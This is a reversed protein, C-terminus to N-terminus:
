SRDPDPDGFIYSSMYFMGVGVMLSRNFDCETCFVNFSSGM